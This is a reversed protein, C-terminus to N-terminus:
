IHAVRLRLLLHRDDARAVPTRRDGLDDAAVDEIAVLKIVLDAHPHILLLDVTFVKCLNDVGLVLVDFVQRHTSAALQGCM